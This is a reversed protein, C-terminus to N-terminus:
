WFTGTKMKGDILDIGFYSGSRMDFRFPNIDLVFDERSELGVSIAFYCNFSHEKNIEETKKRAFKIIEM